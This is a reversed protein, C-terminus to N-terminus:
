EEQMVKECYTAWNFANKLSKIDWHKVAETGAQSLINAFTYVNKIVTPLSMAQFFLFVYKM